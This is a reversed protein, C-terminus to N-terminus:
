KEIYIGRPVFLFREPPLKSCQKFMTLGLNAYPPTNWTFCKSLSREYQSILTSSHTSYLTYYARLCAPLCRPHPATPDRMARKFLAHCM